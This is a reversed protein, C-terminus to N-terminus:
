RGCERFGAKGYVRRGAQNFEAVQLMVNHLTLATFAYDLTLLTAETGYGKGWCHPEGIIIGFEATRHHFDVDYLVTKGIRRWTALEYVTFCVTQEEHTRKEYWATAPEMTLPRPAEYTRMTAFDNIWRQYFPILDRRLPGLGVREGAINVIVGTGTDNGPVPTRNMGIVGYQEV